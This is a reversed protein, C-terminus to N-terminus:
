LELRMEFQNLPMVAFGLRSFFGPALDDPVIQAVVCAKGGRMATLARVM